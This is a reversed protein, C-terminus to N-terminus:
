DVYYSPWKGTGSAGASSAAAPPTACARPGIGRCASTGNWTRTTSSCRATPTSPSTTPTATARQHLDGLDQRRPRDQRRLRGPRPHRARPRQRGVAAAAPPGRGLEEARPQSRVERAAAHPQRLRCLAVQRGAGLRVAHPGHEGGGQIAKLKEVKDLVDDNKSSTVRYLGSGPGGNCVVYLTGKHWLLGQAATIKAPIREVKTEEDTGVKGPTIRVLGKGEQDSAILRGKDDATLSVWSGLEDKPVTFLKEVQFGPLVQFTNAPLRSTGQALPTSAFVNGWPQDGYKASRRAGRRGERREKGICDLDHGFRHVEDRGEPDDDGTQSRLRQSRRRELGRRGVRERRTQPIQTLDAEAGDQWEDCSGVEKGNLFLKVHNDASFKM